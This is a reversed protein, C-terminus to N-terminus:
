GVVGCNSPEPVGSWRSLQKSIALEGGRGMQAAEAGVGLAHESREDMLGVLRPLGLRPAHDVGVEADVARVTDGTHASLHLLSELVRARTDDVENLFEIHTLGHRGRARAGGM